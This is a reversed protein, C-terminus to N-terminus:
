YLYTNVCLVSVNIIGDSMASLQFPSLPSWQLHSQTTRLGSHGLYLYSHEKCGMVRWDKSNGERLAMM